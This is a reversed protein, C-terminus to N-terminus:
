SGVLLTNLDEENGEWFLILDDIFRNYLTLQYPPNHLTEEEEWKDMYLNVISSAFRTGMAVGKIQLYKNQYWFYNYGLCFELCDMTFKKHQRDLDRNKILAWRVANITGKHSIYTYLSAM